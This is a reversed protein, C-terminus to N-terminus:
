RYIFMLCNSKGALSQDAKPQCKSGEAAYFRSPATLWPLLHFVLNLELPAYAQGNM